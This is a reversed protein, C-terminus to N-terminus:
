GVPLGSLLASLGTTLGSALDTSTSLSLLWQIDAAPLNTTISARNSVLASINGVKEPMHQLLAMLEAAPLADIVAQVTGNVTGNVAVATSNITGPIAAGASAGAKVTSNVTAKAAGTATNVAGNVAATAGGFTAGVEPVHVPPIAATAKAAVDAAVGATVAPVEVSGTLKAHSTTTIGGTRALATATLLAIGATSAAVSIALKSYKM